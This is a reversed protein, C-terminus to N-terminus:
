NFACFVRSTLEIYLCTVKEYSFTISMTTLILNFTGRDDSAYLEHRMSFFFHLRMPKLNCANPIEICAKSGIFLFPEFLGSRYTFHLLNSFCIRGLSHHGRKPTGVKERLRRFGKD